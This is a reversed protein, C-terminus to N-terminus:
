LMNIAGSAFDYAESLIERGTIRTPRGKMGPDLVAAPNPKFLSRVKTM